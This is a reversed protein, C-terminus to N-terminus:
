ESWGESLVRVVDLDAWRKNKGDRTRWWSGNRSEFRLWKEGREDEAVAGLGTPEEPRPPKPDAFERLAARMRLERVTMPQENDLEVSQQGLYATVLREVQERDEPDIIVLRRAGFSVQSVFDYGGSVYSFELVRGDTALRPRVLAIQDVDNYTVRAVDGPKWERASM